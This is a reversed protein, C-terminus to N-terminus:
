RSINASGFFIETVELFNCSVSNGLDRKYRLVSESSIGFFIELNNSYSFQKINLYRTNQRAYTGNNLLVDSIGTSVQQKRGCSM